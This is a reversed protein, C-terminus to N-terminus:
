LLDEKLKKNEDKFNDLEIKINNNNNLEDKLKKNENELNKIVDELTKNKKIEEKLNNDKLIIDSKIKSVEDKM